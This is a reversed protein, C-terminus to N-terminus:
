SLRAKRYRAFLGYLCLGVLVVLVLAYVAGFSGANRVNDAVESSHLWYRTGDMLTFPSFLGSIKEALDPPPAANQIVQVAGGGPGGPGGPGGGRIVRAPGQAINNEAQLLIESLVYTALFSIVVVGTAFARRGTTSALFLSIAALVVAWMLGILLGPFLEKTQGWVAAGGHVNAITGGYLVLLPVWMMVLLAGTFALFKALPYDITEMPRSFYLPLVRSRLDKSVLEPAQVAVFIIMVLIRLAPNYTDYGVLQPNGQSMAFANIVAPLCLALLAIVPLIKAKAGRGLGFASRFSHWALARIIQPRGYRPGDYRQYGLDHIVGARTATGTAGVPPNAPM